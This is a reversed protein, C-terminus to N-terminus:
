QRLDSIQNKDKQNILKLNILGDPLEAFESKV